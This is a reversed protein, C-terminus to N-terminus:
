TESICNKLSLWGRHLTIAKLESPDKNAQHLPSHYNANKKNKHCMYSPCYYYYYRYLYNIVISYFDYRFYCACESQDNRIQMHTFALILYLQTSKATSDIIWHNRCVSNILWDILAYFCFMTVDYNNDTVSM